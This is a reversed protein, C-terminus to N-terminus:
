TVYWLLICKVNRMLCVAYQVYDENIDWIDGIVCADNLLSHIYGPNRSEKALIVCNFRAYLFSFLSRISYCPVYVSTRMRSVLGSGKPTNDNRQRPPGSVASSLFRPDTQLEPEPHLLQSTIRRSDWVEVARRPIPSDACASPPHRIIADRAKEM